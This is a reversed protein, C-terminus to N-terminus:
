LLLRVWNSPLEVTFHLRLQAWPGTGPCLQLCLQRMDKSAVVVHIGPDANAHIDHLDRRLRSHFLHAINMRHSFLLLISCAPSCVSQLGDLDFAFIRRPADPRFRWTVCATFGSGKGTYLQVRSHQHPRRRTEEPSLRHVGTPHQFDLMSRPGM